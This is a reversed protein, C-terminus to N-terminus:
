LHGAGAERVFPCRSALSVASFCRVLHWASGPRGLRRLVGSGNPLMRARIVSSTGKGWRLPLVAWWGLKRRRDPTFFASETRAGPEMPVCVGGALVGVLLAVFFNGFIDESVCFPFPCRSPVSASPPAFSPPRGGFFIGVVPAGPWPKGCGRTTSAVPPKPPQKSSEREQPAAGGPAKRPAGIAAFLPNPVLPVPPAPSILWFCLTKARRRPEGLRPVLHFANAPGPLGGRLPRAHRGGGKFSVPADM